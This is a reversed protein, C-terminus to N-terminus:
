QNSAIASDLYDLKYHIELFCVKRLNKAIKRQRRTANRVMELEYEPFRKLLNLLDEKGIVLLNTKVIAIIDFLRASSSFIEIDGFYSGKVLQKFCIKQAGTLMGVRGEILFYM